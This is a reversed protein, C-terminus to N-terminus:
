YDVDGLFILVKCTGKVSHDKTMPFLVIGLRNMVFDAFDLLKLIVQIIDGLIDM